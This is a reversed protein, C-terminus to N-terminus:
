NASSVVSGRRHSHTDNVYTDWTMAHQDDGGCAEWADVATYRVRRNSSHHARAESKTSASTENNSSALTSASASATSIYPMLMPTLVGAETMDNGRANLDGCVIAAGGGSGDNVGNNKAAVAVVADLAAAAVTRM